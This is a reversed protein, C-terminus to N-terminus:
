TKSIVDWDKLPKGIKEIKHKLSIEAKSGIFWVDRTMSDLFVKNKEFYNRISDGRQYDKKFQVAEIKSSNEANEIIIINTDVTIKLM